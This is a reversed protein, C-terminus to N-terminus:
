GKSSPHFYPHRLADDVSLRDEPNWQLLNRVLRLAWVNPFGLKLPDRSRIQHGFVEESCKWSAPSGGQHDSKKSKSSSGPILICLEMFTRLKYALEKLGENWGQLHQDLLVRTLDSVQFVNPSGLILELMVVGVSWMDYKLTSSSMEQYWSSNLLAEPPAYDLTQEARSPGTSGYLHKVTFADIASGFDIIRMKTSFNEDGWRSGNLCRGTAQDEFCIVMNEPKIDRHTINRDHCSKLAMLLQRILHKMEEQGAETTKLWHWWKSPQLIQVHKKPEVTEEDSDQISYVLKSLSMGEYHFVLWIENSRSEFSEVYRAIHNLGEEYIVTKPRFQDLFINKSHRIKGVEYSLSEDKALLDKSGWLPEEFVFNSIGTSLVDGLRITANFFLEGFYKERLGSLYVGAGREVRKMIFLNDELFYAQSSNSSCSCNGVNTDGFPSNCSVNINEGVGSFGEQCNGHFALWVEGYSGRGFRKKLVYRLVPPPHEFLQYDPGPDHFPISELFGLFSAFGEPNFCQDKAETTGLHFCLNQDNYVNLSGGYPQNISEPLTHPLDCLYEEENQTKLGYDKYEDLNESLYFCGVNSHRGEVLLRKFKSMVPHSHELQVANSSVGNASHERTLKELGSIPFSLDRKAVFSAELYRQSSSAPRLPVVIAAMNDMSGREFATSVICDALSYSCSPYHESSSMGDNHIEWMLDCVDQSSLKEFIGDSSAVLYSDNTTLPQWDTVEPASIVGYSKFPVDGIARTIALQGNVRPVGGWDVVHGGAIEVRSREDERDPHHDRTLEKVYFHALGDYSDPRSNGHGRARPAGSYRKQKYLRLFTAKAETPSQFKESCLFAKSDGINAVLIQADALLIVTATSGSVLNYKHAEKSFTKDIDQIARLLAEKLIELHFDNDLDAPLLYKLRGLELGRKSIEENWSLQNFITGHDRENSFTKVSRKFIGSYTADLLFYTHVVFYELLIKSAMESAEAGNHGDFVAIVGVPIETLGSKGPFPIRVDLACLTRDEQYKRRGQHMAIQCHSASPSQFTYDSLKWLPCKPSQFVATAGGEKYVMLCTSSEAFSYTRAYALFWVIIMYFKTVEIKQLAM